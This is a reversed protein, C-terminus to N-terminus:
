VSRRPAVKQKTSRNSSRQKRCISPKRNKVKPFMLEPKDNVKLSQWWLVASANQAPWNVSQFIALAPIYFAMVEAPFYEALGELTGKKQDEDDRTATTELAEKLAEHARDTEVRTVLDLDADKLVGELQHSLAHEDVPTPPPELVKAQTDLDRNVISRISM